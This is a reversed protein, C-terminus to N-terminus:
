TCLTTVINHNASLTLAESSLTKAVVRWYAVTLGEYGVTSDGRSFGSPRPSVRQTMSSQPARVLCDFTEAHADGAGLASFGALGIRGQEGLLEGAHGGPM